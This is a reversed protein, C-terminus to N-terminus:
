RGDLYELIILPTRIEPVVFGYLRQWVWLGSADGLRTTAYVQGDHFSVGPPEVPFVRRRTEVGGITV